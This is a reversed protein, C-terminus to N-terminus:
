SRSTSDASHEARNVPALLFQFQTVGGTILSKVQRRAAELLPHDIAHARSHYEIGSGDDQSFGNALAGGSGAIVALGVLLAASAHTLRM